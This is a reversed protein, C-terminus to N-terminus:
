IDFIWDKTSLLPVFPRPHHMMRAKKNKQFSAQANTVIYWQTWRRDPLYQYLLINFIKTDDM